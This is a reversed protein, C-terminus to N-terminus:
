PYLHRQAVWQQKTVAGAGDSPGAHAFSGQCTPGVAVTARTLGPHGFRVRHPVRDLSCLPRARRRDVEEAREMCGYSSEVQGGAVDDTIRHPPGDGARTNAL